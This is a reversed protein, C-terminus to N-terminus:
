ISVGPSSGSCHLNSVTPNICQLSKKHAIFVIYPCLGGKGEEGVGEGEREGRETKGYLNKNNCHHDKFMQSLHGHNCNM